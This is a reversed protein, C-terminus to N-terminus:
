VYLFITIQLVLIPKATLNLKFLKNNLIRTCMTCRVEIAYQEVDFIHRQEHKKTNELAVAYYQVPEEGVCM